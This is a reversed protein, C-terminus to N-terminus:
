AKQMVLSVISVTNTKEQPYKTNEVSTRIRADCFCILQVWLLRPSKYCHERALGNPKNVWPQVLLGLTKIKPSNYGLEATKRMDDLKWCFLGVTSPWCWHILQGMNPKDHAICIGALLRRYHAWVNCLFSCAFVSFFVWITFLHWCHENLNFFPANEYVGTQNTEFSVGRSVKSACFSVCVCVCLM